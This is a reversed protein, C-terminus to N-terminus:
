NGIMRGGISYTAFKLWGPTSSIPYLYQAGRIEDFGLSPYAKFHAWRFHAAQTEFRTLNWVQNGIPKLWSYEEMLKQSILWHHKIGGIDLGRSDTPVTM